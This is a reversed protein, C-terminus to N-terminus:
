PHFNPCDVQSSTRGLGSQTTVASGDALSFCSKGDVLVLPVRFGFCPVSKENKLGFAEVTTDALEGFAGGAYGFTKFRVADVAPWLLLFSSGSTLVDVGFEAAKFRFIM